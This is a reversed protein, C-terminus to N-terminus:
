GSPGQRVNQMANSDGQRMRERQGPAFCEGVNKIISSVEQGEPSDSERRGM